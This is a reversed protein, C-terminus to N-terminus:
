SSELKCLKSQHRQILHHELLALLDRRTSLDLGLSECRKLETNMLEVSSRVYDALDMSKVADEAWTVIYDQALKLLRPEIINTYVALDHTLSIADKSLSQTSLQGVRDSMILDCIGDITKKQIQKQEFIM